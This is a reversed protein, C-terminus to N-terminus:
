TKKPKTFLRVACPKALGPCPQTGGCAGDWAPHRQQLVCLSRGGFSASSDAVSGRAGPQWGLALSAEAVFDEVAGERPM